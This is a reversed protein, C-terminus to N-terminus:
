VEVEMCRSNSGEESPWDGGLRDVVSGGAGREM